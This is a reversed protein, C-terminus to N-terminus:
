SHSWEHSVCTNKEGALPDRTPNTGPYRPSLCPEWDIPCGKNECPNSQLIYLLWPMYHISCCIDCNSWKM